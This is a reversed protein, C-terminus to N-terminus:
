TDLFIIICVHVHTFWSEKKAKNFMVIIKVAIEITNSDGPNSAVLM